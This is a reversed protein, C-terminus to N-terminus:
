LILLDILDVQFVNALHEIRDIPVNVRGMEIQSLYTQTIGSKASLEDQSWGKELRVRRVNRALRTRASLPNFLSSM